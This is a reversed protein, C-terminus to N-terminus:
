AVRGEIYGRVAKILDISHEGVYYRSDDDELALDLAAMAGTATTVSLKAAAKLLADARDCRADLEDDDMGRMACDDCIAKVHARYLQILEFLRDDGHTALVAMGGLAVAAPVAAVVTLAHRRNITTQTM